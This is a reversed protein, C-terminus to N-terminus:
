CWKIEAKSFNGYTIEMLIFNPIRTYGKRLKGVAAAAKEEPTFRLKKPDTSNEDSPYTVNQDQPIKDQDQKTEFGPTENVHRNRIWGAM